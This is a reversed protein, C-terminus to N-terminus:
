RSGGGSGQSLKVKTFRAIEGEHLSSKKKRGAKEARESAKRARAGQLWRVADVDGIAKWDNSPPSGEFDGFMTLRFLTPHPTGDAAKGRQVRILGKFVLEDIADAVLRGTVGYAIFDPHTIILRGNENRNKKLYEGTVRWFARQANASLSTFSPSFLMEETMWIWPEGKPPARFNDMRKQILSVAVRGKDKASYFAM